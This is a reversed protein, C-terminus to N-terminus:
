DHFVNKKEKEGQAEEGGRTTRTRLVFGGNLRLARWVRGSQLGVGFAQL